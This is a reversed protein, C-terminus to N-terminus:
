CRMESESNESEKTDWEKKNESEKDEPVRCDEEDIENEDDNEDDSGIMYCFNVVENNEPEFVFKGCKIMVGEPENAEVESYETNDNWKRLWM